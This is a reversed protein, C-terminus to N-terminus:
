PIQELEKILNEFSEQSVMNDPIFRRLRNLSSGMAFQLMPTRNLDGMWKTVLEKGRPDRFIVRLMTDANLRPPVNAADYIFGGSLRIDRSSSGILVEYKGPDASWDHLDPDYYALASADLKFFVERREHPILEIKQFAKLEKEPRNIGPDIPRIYVQITEKGVMEGVNEIALKFEIVEDAAYEAKLCLDSYKFQTYSLGHGFPFLVDMKKTDYYRYGVFVGEGYRVHKREGPFNIYAPNDELRNPFTTPLKGSPNRLGFLIRAVANGCEQGPYWAELVAPAQDLWPMSIPSGNSLVVVTNPNAALVAEVLQIQVAPVDMTERDYAESEDGDALGVCLVVADSEKAYQLALEYDDAILSEGVEIRVGAAHLIEVQRGVLNTIGDLPSVTYYPNVNASGGGQIRAEAAFPGLVAVKKLREAQLPLVQENKLLVMAEEATQLALVREKATNSAELNVVSEKEFAGSLFILRLIRRVIEDLREEPVKGSRVAELLDPDIKEGRGPMELELGANASAPRDHVAGWDSVVLGEFGWKGRLTETLLFYNESAYTGNIKNYSCMVTWPQAEEVAAKFGPFYIENMTREDLDSSGTHREFEQNNMAYHKLSTGVGVSQVGKIYAVALRSILYPDESFYEFNRGGLPSRHINIAPGLIIHAGKNRTEEGLAKGVKGILTPNWTAAMASGTPYCNAPMGLFREQTDDPITRAGYPGDTMKIAPIGLREIAVTHWPGDGKFMSVKEELTMQSVLAEIKETISDTM